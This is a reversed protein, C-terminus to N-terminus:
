PAAPIVGNTRLHEPMERCNNADKGVSVFAIWCPSDRKRKHKTDGKIHRLLSSERNFGPGNKKGGDVKNSFCELNPCWYMEQLHISSIHRHAVQSSRFYQTCDLHLCMYLAKGVRTYGKFVDDRSAQALQVLVRQSLTPLVAQVLPDSSTALLEVLNFPRLDPICQCKVLEAPSALPVGPVFKYKNGAFPANYFNAPGDLLGNQIVTSADILQPSWQQVGVVGCPAEPGNAYAPLYGNAQPEYNPVFNADLCYDTHHKSLLPLFIIVNLEM